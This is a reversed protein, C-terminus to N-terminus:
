KTEGALGLEAITADLQTMGYQVGEDYDSFQRHEQCYAIEANLDARLKALAEAVVARFDLHAELQTNIEKMAALKDRLTALEAEQKRIYGIMELTTSAAAGGLIKVERTTKAFFEKLKASDEADINPLNNM